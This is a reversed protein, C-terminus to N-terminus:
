TKKKLYLWYRFLNLSSIKLKGTSHFLGFFTSIRAARSISFSPLSLVARIASRDNLFIDFHMIAYLCVSHNSIYFDVSVQLQPQKHNGHSAVSVSLHTEPHGDVCRAQQHANQAGQVQLLDFHAPRQFFYQRDHDRSL